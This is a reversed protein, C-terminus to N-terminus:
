MYCTRLSRGCITSASVGRHSQLFSTPLEHQTPLHIQMSSRIPGLGVNTALSPHVKVNVFGVTYIWVLM